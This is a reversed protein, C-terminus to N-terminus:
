STKQRQDESIDAAEINQLMLSRINLAQVTKMPM